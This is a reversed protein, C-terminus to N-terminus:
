TGDEAAVRFAEAVTTLGESAKLLADDLLSRV